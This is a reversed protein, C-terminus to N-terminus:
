SDKINKEDTYPFGFVITKYSDALIMYDGFVFHFKKKPCNM